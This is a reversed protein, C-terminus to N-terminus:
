WRCDMCFFVCLFVVISFLLWLVLENIHEFMSNKEEITFAAVRATTRMKCYCLMAVEFQSPEAWCLMGFLLVKYWLRFRRLRLRLHFRRRCCCLLGTTWRFALNLNSADNKLKVTAQVWELSKLSPRVMCVSVCVWAWLFCFFFCLFYM